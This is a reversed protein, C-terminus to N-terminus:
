LLPETGKTYWSRFMTHFEIKSKSLHNRNTRSWTESTCNVSYFCKKIIDSFQFIVDTILTVELFFKNTFTEFLCYWGENGWKLISFVKNAMHSNKQTIWQHISQLRLNVKSQFQFTESSNQNRSLCFEVEVCFSLRSICCYRQHITKTTHNVSSLCKIQDAAPVM